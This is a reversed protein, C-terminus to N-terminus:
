NFSAELEGAEEAAIEDQEVEAKEHISLIAKKFGSYVVAMGALLVIMAYKFNPGVMDGVEKETSVIGVTSLLIYTFVMLGLLLTAVEPFRKWPKMDVAPKLKKPEYTKGPK